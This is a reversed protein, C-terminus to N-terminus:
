KKKKGKCKAMSGGGKMPMKGIIAIEVKNPMKGMESSKSSKKVM